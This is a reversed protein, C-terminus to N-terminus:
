IPLKQWKIPSDLEMACACMWPLSASPPVPPVWSALRRRKLPHSLFLANEPFNTVIRIQWPSFFMACKLVYKCPAKWRGKGICDAALVSFNSISPSQSNVKFNILPEERFESNLSSFFLMVKAYLRYCAMQCWFGQCGSSNKITQGITLHRYGLFYPPSHGQNRQRHM